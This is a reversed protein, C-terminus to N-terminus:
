RSPMVTVSSEEGDLITDLEGHIKELLPIAEACAARYAPAEDSDDCGDRGNETYYIASDIANWGLATQPFQLVVSGDPKVQREAFIRALEVEEPYDPGTGLDERAFSEAWMKPLTVDITKPDSM